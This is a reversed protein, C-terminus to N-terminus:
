KKLNLGGLLDGLTGFAGASRAPTAQAQWAQEEGSTDERTTLTVKREGDELIRAEIPRGKRFRQAIVTGAPLEAEREPLWGTRGDELQVVVGNRLVEAITGKVIQGAAPIPADDDGTVPSLSLRQREHDVEVIRVRLRTGVKPLGHPLRSIHVVGQLGPALEVFAGFQAVRVVEGEVVSGGRVSVGVANWPDNAPDRASLTLKKAARDIELVRVELGMGPAPDSGQLERRPILGDIGGVDVFVGFPLVNRVVGRLEQGVELTSWLEGAKAEAIADQLVRRDLVIKDGTEIVRFQLTQGIYGDPDVGTIRSMRSIPCFASVSGIRVEFGGPNRSKVVGEVPVGTELADELHDMAAQGSLKLSLRVGGEDASLVMADIVDGPRADPLEARDISAEAKGGIEVFVVSAGIRVVRGQVREGLQARAKPLNGAMAAAMESPSMGAIAMLDDTSLRPREPEVPAARAAPSAPRTAAPRSPAPAPAAPVAPPPADVTEEPEGGRKRSRTIKPKEM